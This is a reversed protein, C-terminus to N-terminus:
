RIWRKSFPEFLHLDRGWHQNSKRHVDSADPTPGATSNVRLSYETMRVSIQTFMRRLPGRPVSSLTFFTFRVQRFAATKIYSGKERARVHINRPSVVPAKKQVGCKYICVKRRPSMYFKQDWRIIYYEHMIRKGNWLFRRNRLYDTIMDCSYRVCSTHKAPFKLHCQALSDSQM